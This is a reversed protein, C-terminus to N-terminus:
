HSHGAVDLTLSALDLVFRDGGDAPPTMVAAFLMVAGTLGAPVEVWGEASSRTRTRTGDASAIVVPYDALPAGKALLTYSTASGSTAVFELSHGLPRTPDSGGDCREVCVFSKAFRSSIAKLVRPRPLRDVSRVAEPSVQYEQMIGGIRDEPYEVDRPVARASLIALGPETARFRTRMSQPGPGVAEFMAQPDGVVRLEAIRDAAVVLELEPFESAITVDVMLPDGRATVFSTPLIFFDHASAAAPVFAALCVGVVGALLSGSVFDFKM